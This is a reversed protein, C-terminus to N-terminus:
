QPKGAYVRFTEAIKRIRELGESESTRYIALDELLWTLHEKIKPDESDRRADRLKSEWLVMRERLTFFVAALSKKDDGSGSAFWVM